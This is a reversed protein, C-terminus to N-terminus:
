SKWEILKDVKSVKKFFGVTDAKSKELDDIKKNLANKKNKLKTLLNNLNTFDKFIEIFCKIELELM